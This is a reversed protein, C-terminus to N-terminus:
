GGPLFARVMMAILPGSGYGFGIMAEHKAGADMDSSGIELAYYIAASYIMGVGIGFLALAVGLVLASPAGICGVYAILMLVCGLAIIARKGHWARARQMTAFAGLRTAMWVSALAPQASERIELREMLQPIVPMLSAHLVYSLVLMGRALRLLRRYLADQEPDHDHAPQGHAHPEPNFRVLPVLCLLHLPALAGIIWRPHHEILPVMCWMAVFIASAWALNFAGAARNLDAGRRGSSVYQEVAPWLLGTLPTYALGFVWVSWEGRWLVPVLALAGGVIMILALVGRASARPGMARALGGALPRAFLAAFAYVFGLVAALGLNDTEDYGLDHTTVFFIGAWAVATGFSAAWALTLVAWLPTTAPRAKGLASPPRLM